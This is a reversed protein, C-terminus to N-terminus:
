SMMITINRLQKAIYSIQLSLMIHNNHNNYHIKLIEKFFISIDM